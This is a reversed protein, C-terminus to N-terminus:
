AAAQAGSRGILLVTNSLTSVSLFAALEDTDSEIRVKAEFVVESRSDEPPLLTYRCEKGPANVSRLGDGGIEADFATRPGGVAYHGAERELDGVWAYTGLGGNVNRGTVMVRGDPLQKAYPRHLAFPCREPASWTHGNDSSFCVFSPIGASHNERLM